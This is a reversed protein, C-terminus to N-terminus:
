DWPNTEPPFEARIDRIDRAFEDADDGLAPLSSLFANLKGVTLPPSTLLEITLRVDTHAPLNLPQSPKLVGDEYKATITLM